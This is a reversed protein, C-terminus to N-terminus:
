KASALDRVTATLLRVKNADTAGNAESELQTSLLTLANSRASGNAKEAANLATMIATTRAAPLGNDRVLQDVYAKALSFTAPWVMKPQDQPNLESYHVTKAADLENQSIFASPQLEFIDLGRSIESSVIHGNYWYASWSGAMVLKSADMPGRDFYAIEKPHAADTWDFVSLGGQYWAQVMVDRGPIPILSGNHAVCNEESTQAAPLKYYNKFEMKGNTLTFIADAGWEPKDTSRCRPASGGGWEDSFLVKSGDNNFTASHWFSFNSDAVASVRKPHAPDRIDLLVGYGACAGGALGIAPYVTIDHCQVPGRPPGAPGRPRGSGGRAAARAAAAAQDAPTEAHKTVAGLDALIAPKAVVHASAPNSLPVQIVEIRFLESNPDDEPNQASCGPLEQASRVPASGSVYVYINQQDNPSSVVTHTHSGRCTQVNTVLKPHAIDAIDWIRVGRFREHSVTDKVGEKGCDVRASTAEGSEFLLNHYVSVDSQSGPCFKEAYLTVKSPNSIDWVQYGAYNGQIAYKGSFALDSNTLASAGPTSPDMFDKSPKTNSVLHMNWSADGADFWGAKLGVRPDPSPPTPSMNAAVNSPSPGASASSSSSACAAAALVAASLLPVAVWPAASRLSPSKSNVPSVPPIDPRADLM